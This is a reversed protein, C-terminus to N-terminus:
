CDWFVMLVGFGRGVGVRFLVEVGRKVGRGFMLVGVDALTFAVMM